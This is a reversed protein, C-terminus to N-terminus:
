EEKLKIEKNYLDLEDIKDLVFIFEDYYISDKDINNKISDIDINEIKEKYEYIDDITM